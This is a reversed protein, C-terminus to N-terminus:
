SKSFGQGKCIPCKKFEADNSITRPQTCVWGGKCEPCPKKFDNNDAGSPRSNSLTDKLRQIFIPITKGMDLKKYTDDICKILNDVLIYKRYGEIVSHRKNADEIEQFIEYAHQIKIEM